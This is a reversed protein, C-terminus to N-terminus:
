FTLISFLSSLSRADTADFPPQPFVPRHHVDLVSPVLVVRTTSSLQERLTDAVEAMKAAFFKEFSTSIETPSSIM